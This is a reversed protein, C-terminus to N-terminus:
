PQRYRSPALTLTGCGVAHMYDVDINGEADRANGQAVLASAVSAADPKSLAGAALAAAAGASVAAADARTAAPEFVRASADADETPAAPASCM